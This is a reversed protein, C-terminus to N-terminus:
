PGSITGPAMSRHDVFFRRQGIFRGDLRKRERPPKHERVLAQSCRRQSAAVKSMMMRSM